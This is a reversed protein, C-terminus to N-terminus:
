AFREERARFQVRLGVEPAGMTTLLTDVLALLEAKLSRSSAADAVFTLEGRGTRAMHRVLAVALAARQEFGKVTAAVDQDGVLVEARAVNQGSRELRAISRIAERASTGAAAEALVVVDWGEDRSLAKSLYGGREVFILHVPPNNASSTALM